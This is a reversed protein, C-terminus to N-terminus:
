FIVEELVQNSKIEGFGSIHLQYFNIIAQLLQKRQIKDMKILHITPYTENIFDNLLKSHPSALFHPHKPLQNVFNGGQLDFISYDSSYKGQPFFGLYKSLQIMFYLHFNSCNETELDLILLSNKIFEFMDEDAHQERLSKYLIENIFIAVSSKIITYPISHYAQHISIESITQLGSKKTNAIVLDVLTLPQFLTAKNKSKKSRVGNIIFSKVGSEPTYIKTILSTESYKITHLVIGKTKLLM